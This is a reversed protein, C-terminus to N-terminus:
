GCSKENGPSGSGTKIATPLNAKRGRQVAMDPFLTEAKPVIGGRKLYSKLPMMDGEAMADLAGRYEELGPPSPERGQVLVAHIDAIMDELKRIRAELNM